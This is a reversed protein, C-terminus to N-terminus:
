KYLEIEVIKATPGNTATVFIRIRDTKVPKFVSEIADEQKGAAEAVTLWKENVFAQVQYDRITKEFPYVVVKSITEPKDLKLEIWDPSENPTADNWALLGPYHEESKDIVGDTVHWLGTNLRVGLTKAYLNSSATVAVHDGEFMQFALNGPKRRKANVQDIEDNIEKITKLGPGEMNTTYVHVQFPTFNDSFSSGKLKITRGESIVRLTKDALAPITFEINGTKRATNSVFLWYDNELKKFMYKVKPEACHIKTNADPEMIAAALFAQEKLLYPAGICIEPYHAVTRNFHILGRSGMIVALLDQNRLEEYTPIREGVNGANGYDFGAHLYAMTQKHKKNKFYDAALEMYTIVKEFDYMSENKQVSPYCHLGNMDGAEDFDKMGSISNSSILVPHYPDLENILDYAYKLSNVTEGMVEPEDSLYYAFLKQNKSMKEILDSFYIKVDAPVEKYFGPMYKQPIHFLSGLIRMNEQSLLEKTHMSAIQEPSIVMASNLLISNFDKVYNEEPLWGGLMFFKKGDVHWQMDQGLWVEDKKYALKRFAQITEAKVNGDNDLLKAVIELKGEPLKDAEFMIENKAAVPSKKQIEIASAAGKCRVLVELRLNSLEAPSMNFNVDLVVNKVKQTAFISNKYWPVLLDIAMPVYSINLPFQKVALLTKTVNDLVSVYCQYKGQEALKFDDWSFTKKEDKRFSIEQTRSFVNGNPSTLLCDVQVKQQKGTLNTLLDSLQLNLAGDKLASKIDPATMRWCFPLFDVDLKLVPFGGAIKFEGNRAISSNESPDKSERCINIGWLSGVEPTIDLTYFPIMIECSWFDKGIYTATKIKGNWKPDSVGGGQDCYSDFISNSSNIIIHYFNSKRNNIDLMLEVCDDDWVRDDRIRKPSKLAKSNSVYCEIGFYIASSTYVIKAVTKERALSNTGMVSFGSIPKASKWAEENLKGDLIPANIIKAAVIEEANAIISLMLLLYITFTKILKM